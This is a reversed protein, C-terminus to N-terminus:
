YTVTVRDTKPSVDWQLDRTAREICSAVSPNSPHTKVAVNVARGMKVTADVVVKMDDPAGCAAIFTGRVLPAGLQASSLPATQRHVPTGADTSAATGGDTTRPSPAAFSSLSSAVSSTIMGWERTLIALKGTLASGVVAVAALVVILALVIRGTGRNQM